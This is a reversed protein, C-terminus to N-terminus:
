KERQQRWNYQVRSYFYKGQELKQPKAQSPAACSQRQVQNSAMTKVIRACKKIFLPAHAYVSYSFMCTRNYIHFATAAFLVPM